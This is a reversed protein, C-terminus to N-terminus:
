FASWFEPKGFVADVMYVAWEGHRNKELVVFALRGDQREVMTIRNSYLSMSLYEFEGDVLRSWNKGDVTAYVFGSADEFLQAQMRTIKEGPKDLWMEVAADKQGGAEEIENVGIIPAHPKKLSEM